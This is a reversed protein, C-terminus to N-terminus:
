LMVTKVEWVRSCIRYQLKVHIFLADHVHDSIILKLTTM